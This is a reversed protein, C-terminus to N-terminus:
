TKFILLSIQFIKLSRSTFFGRSDNVVIPLKGLAQVYDYARAVTEDDTQKGRIIEVLKMKDVPSFFHIGIFKDPQASAKALGSIPLTSTNTAFFGGPALMPEAEKTVQAKLERNEFVAEIILDCGQLDTASATEPRCTSPQHM